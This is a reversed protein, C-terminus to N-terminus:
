DFIDDNDLEENNSYNLPQYSLIEGKATKKKVVACWDNCQSVLYRMSSGGFRPPRISVIASRANTDRVVVYIKAKIFLLKFSLKKTFVISNFTALDLTKTVELKKELEEIENEVKEIQTQKNEETPQTKGEQLTKPSTSPSLFTGVEKSPQPNTKPPQAKVQM